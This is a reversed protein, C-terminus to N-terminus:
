ADPWRDKLAALEVACQEMTFGMEACNDHITQLKEMLFPDVDNFIDPFEVRVDAASLSCEDAHAAQEDTLWLGIGCSNGEPSRYQCRYIHSNNKGPGYGYVGQKTLKEITQDIFESNKM